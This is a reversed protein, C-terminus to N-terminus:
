TAAVAGEPPLTAGPNATSSGNCTAAATFSALRERETREIGAPVSNAVTSRLPTIGEGRGALGDNTSGNGYETPMSGNVSRATTAKAEVFMPSMMLKFGLKVNLGSGLTGGCHM